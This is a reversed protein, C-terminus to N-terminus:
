FYNNNNIIISKDFKNNSNYIEMRIIIEIVKTMIFIIM